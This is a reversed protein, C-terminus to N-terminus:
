ASEAVPEREKQSAIAQIVKPDTHANLSAGLWFLNRMAESQHAEAWLGLRRSSSLNRVIGKYPKVKRSFQPETHVPWKDKAMASKFLLRRALAGIVVDDGDLTEFRVPYLGRNPSVARQLDNMEQQAEARYKDAEAMVSIIALSGAFRDVEQVHAELGEVAMTIEAGWHPLWDFRRVFHTFVVSRDSNFEISKLAM